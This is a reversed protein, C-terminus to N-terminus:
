ACNIIEYHEINKSLLENIEKLSHFDFKDCWQFGHNSPLLFAPVYGQDTEIILGLSYKNVGMNSTDIKDPPILKNDPFKHLVNLSKISLVKCDKSLVKYWYRPDNEQFQEKEKLLTMSCFFIEDYEEANGGEPVDDM